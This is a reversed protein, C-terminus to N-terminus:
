AGAGPYECARIATSHADALEFVTKGDVDRAVIVATGGMSAVAAAIDTVTRAKERHPFADQEEKARDRADLTAERRGREWGEADAQKLLARVTDRHATPLTQVGMELAPATTM